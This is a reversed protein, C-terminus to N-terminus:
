AYDSGGSQSRCCSQNSSCHPLLTGNSGVGVLGTWEGMEGNPPRALVSGFANQYLEGGVRRNEDLAIDFWDRFLVHSDNASPRGAACDPIFDLGDLYLNLLSCPRYSPVNVM